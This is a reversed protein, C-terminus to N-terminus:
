EDEWMAKVVLWSIWVLVPLTLWVAFLPSFLMLMVWALVSVILSLFDNIKM